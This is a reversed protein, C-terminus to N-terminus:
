QPRRTHFVVCKGPRLMAVPLVSICVIREFASRLNKILFKRFLDIYKYQHKHIPLVKEIFVNKAVISDIIENSYDIELLVDTLDASFNDIFCTKLLYGKVRDDLKNFVIEMFYEYISDAVTEKKMLASSLLDCEQLLLHLGTIWGDSWQYLSEAEKETLETNYMKLALTKIEDEDFKLDAYNVSYLDRKSRYNIFSFPLEIRSNIM